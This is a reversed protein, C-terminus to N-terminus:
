NKFYDIVQPPFLEIAEKDVATFIESKSVWKVHSLEESSKANTELPRCEYWIVLIFQDPKRVVRIDLVKSPKVKIGTEELIEREIAENPHEGEEVKGGPIHWKEALVDNEKYATKKGILVKGNDNVVGVVAIKLM